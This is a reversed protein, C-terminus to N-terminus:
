NLRALKTSLHLSYTITSTIMGSASWKIVINGVPDLAKLIVAGPGVGEEPRAGRALRAALADEQGEGKISLEVVVLVPACGDEALKLPYTDTFTDILDLTWCM